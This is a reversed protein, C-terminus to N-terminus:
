VGSTSAVVDLRRLAEVGGQGKLTVELAADMQQHMKLFLDNREYEDIPSTRGHEIMQKQFRKIECQAELPPNRNPEIAALLRHTIHTMYKGMM